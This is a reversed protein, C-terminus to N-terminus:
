VTVGNMPLVGWAAVVTDPEGAGVVAVTVPRVLPVAYVNVTVAEFGAPVAGADEGDAETVGDAVADTTAFPVKSVFRLPQVAVPEGTGDREVV